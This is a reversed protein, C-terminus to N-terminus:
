LIEKELAHLINVGSDDTLILILKEAKGAPIGDITFDSEIYKGADIKSIQLPTAVRSVTKKCTEGSDWTIVMRLQMPNSSINGLRAIRYTGSITEGNLEFDAEITYQGDDLLQDIALDKVRNFVNTANSAGQVRAEAGNLFLDPVGKFRAADISLYSNYLAETNFSDAELPDTYQQTDRHYELVILHGKLDDDSTLEDIAALAYENFLHLNDATNVFAELVLIKESKSSPNKPDLINDRDIEKCSVLIILLLSFIYKYVM